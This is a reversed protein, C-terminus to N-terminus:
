RSRFRWCTPTCRSRFTKNSISVRQEEYLAYVMELGKMQKQVELLNPYMTIPFNQYIYQGETPTCRSGFTKNSIGVRQEEYLAYVMELGKMQKQVELLNPYMTIPFNQYIYQGETPTCRSRFTKNSIGVRQEEYLAYVMELGKMQKQVELLNPYM